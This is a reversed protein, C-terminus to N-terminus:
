KKSQSKILSKNRWKLLGHSTNMQIKKKPNTKMFAIRPTNKKTSKLTKRTNSQTLSFTSEPHFDKSHHNSRKWVVVKCRRKHNLIWLMNNFLKLMLSKQAWKKCLCEAPKIQGYTRYSVLSMKNKRYKGQWFLKNKNERFDKSKQIRHHCLFHNKHLTQSLSVGASPNPM